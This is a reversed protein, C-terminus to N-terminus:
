NQWNRRSFGRVAMQCGRIQKTASKQKTALRMKPDVERWHPCEWHKRQEASDETEQTGHKERRQNVDQRRKAGQSPACQFHLKWAWFTMLLDQCKVSPKIPFEWYPFWTGWSNQLNRQIRNKNRPNSKFDEVMRCGLGKPSVQQLLQQPLTKKM